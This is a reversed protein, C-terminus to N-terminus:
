QLKCLNQIDTAITSAGDAVSPIPHPADTVCSQAKTTNTLANEWLLGQEVAASLDQGGFLQNV